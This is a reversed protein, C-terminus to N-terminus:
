KRINGLDAVRVPVGSEKKYKYVNGNKDVENYYIQSDVLEKKLEPRQEFPNTM